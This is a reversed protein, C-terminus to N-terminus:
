SIKASSVNRNRWLCKFHGSLYGRRLRGRRFGDRGADGARQLM